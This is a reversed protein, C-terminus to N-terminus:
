RTPWVVQQVDLGLERQVQSVVNECFSLGCQVLLDRSWFKDSQFDSDLAVIVFDGNAQRVFSIMPNEDTEISEYLFDGGTDKCWKALQSAFEVISFLEESYFVECDIIISLSADIRHLLQLENAAGTVESSFNSAEFRLM